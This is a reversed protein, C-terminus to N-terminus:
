DCGLRLGGEPGHKCQAHEHRVPPFQRLGLSCGGESSALWVGRAVSPFPAHPRWLRVIAGGHGGRTGNGGFKRVDIGAWLMLPVNGSMNASPSVQCVARRADLCIECGGIQAFRAPTLLTCQSLEVFPPHDTRVSICEGAGFPRHHTNSSHGQCSGAFCFLAYAVTFLLAARSSFCTRAGRRMLARRMSDMHWGHKGIIPLTQNAVFFTHSAYPAGQAGRQASPITWASPELTGVQM